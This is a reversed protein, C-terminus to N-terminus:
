VTANWTVVQWIHTISLVPCSLGRPGNRALRDAQASARLRLWGLVAFM